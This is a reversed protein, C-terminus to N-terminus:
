KPLDRAPARLPALLCNKGSIECIVCIPLFPKWTMKLLIIVPFILSLILPIQTMQPLVFARFTIGLGM